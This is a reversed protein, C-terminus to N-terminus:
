SLAVALVPQRHVLVAVVGGSAPGHRANNVSPGDIVDRNYGGSTAQRPRQPLAMAQETLSTLSALRVTVSREDRATREDRAPLSDPHRM